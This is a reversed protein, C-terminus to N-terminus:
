LVAGGELRWVVAFLNVVIHMISAPILNDSKWTIYGALVGFLFVFFLLAWNDSYRSIHLVAFILSQVLIAFFPNFGFKRLYGLLFGRDNFEEAISNQISGAVLAFTTSTAAVNLYQTVNAVLFSFGLLLGFFLGLGSFFLITRINKVYVLQQINNVNLQLGILIVIFSPVISFLVVSENRYSLSYGSVLDGLLIIGFGWPKNVKHRYSYIFLYIWIATLLFFGTYPRMGAFFEVISYEM